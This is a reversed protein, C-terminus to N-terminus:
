RLLYLAIPLMKIIPTSLLFTLWWTQGAVFILLFCQSFRNLATGWLVFNSGSYLHNLTEYQFLKKFINNRAYEVKKYEDVGNWHIDDHKKLYLNELLFDWLLCFSAFFIVWKVICNREFFRVRKLFRLKSTM